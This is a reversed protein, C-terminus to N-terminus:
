SVAVDRAMAAGGSVGCAAESAVCFTDSTM